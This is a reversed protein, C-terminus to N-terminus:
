LAGEWAVLLALEWSAAARGGMLLLIIQAPLLEPLDNGLPLLHEALSMAEWPPFVVEWAFLVVGLSAIIGVGYLMLALLGWPEGISPGLGLYTMLKDLLGKVCTCLDTWALLGLKTTEELYGGLKCYMVAM